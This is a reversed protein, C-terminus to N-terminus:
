AGGNTMSLGFTKTWPFHRGPSIFWVSENWDERYLRPEHKKVFESKAPYSFHKLVGDNSLAWLAATARRAPPHGPATAAECIEHGYCVVLHRDSTNPFSYFAPREGDQAFRYGIWALLRDKQTVKKHPSM